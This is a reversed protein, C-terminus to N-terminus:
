DDLDLYRASEAVGGVARGAVVPLAETTPTEMAAAVRVPSSDPFTGELVSRVNQYGKKVKENYKKQAEQRARFHSPFAKVQRQPTGGVRGYTVYMQVNFVECRWFKNSTGEVYTLLFHPDARNM